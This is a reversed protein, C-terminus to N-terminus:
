VVFARLCVKTSLMLHPTNLRSYGSTLSKPGEITQQVCFLQGGSIKPLCDRKHYPIIIGLQPSTFPSRVVPSGGSYLHVQPSWCFKPHRRANHDHFCRFRKVLLPKISINRHGQPYYCIQGALLIASRVVEFPEAVQNYSTCIRHSSSTKIGPSVASM